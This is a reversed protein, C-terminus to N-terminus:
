FFICSAYQHYAMLRFKIILHGSRNPITRLPGGFDSDNAPASQKRSVAPATRATQVNLCRIPDKGSGNPISPM